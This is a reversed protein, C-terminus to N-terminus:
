RERRWYVGTWDITAIPETIANTRRYDDVAARCGQTGPNGYDDVILYGGISLKPYLAELAVITSEYM